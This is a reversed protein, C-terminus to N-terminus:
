GSPAPTISLPRPERHPPPTSRGHEPWGPPSWCPPWSRPSRDSSSVSDMAPHSSPITPARPARRRARRFANQGMGHEFHRDTCQTAGRTGEFDEPPYRGTAAEGKVDHSCGRDLTQACCSPDISAPSPNRGTV